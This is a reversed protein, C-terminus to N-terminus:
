SVLKVTVRKGRMIPMAGPVGAEAVGASLAERLVDDREQRLYASVRLLFAQGESVAPPSFCSFVVPDAGGLGASTWNRPPRAVRPVVHAHPLESPAISREAPEPGSAGPGGVSGRHPMLPGKRDTGDAPRPTERPRASLTSPKKAVRTSTLSDKPMAMYERGPGVVYDERRWTPGLADGAAYAHGEPLAAGRSPGERLEAGQQVLIMGSEKKRVRPPIPPPVSAEPTSAQQAYSAVVVHDPPVVTPSPPVRQPPGAVGEEEEDVVMDARVSQSPDALAVPPRTPLAPLQTISSRKQAVAKRKAKKTSMVLPRRPPGKADSKYMAPGLPAQRAVGLIRDDMRVAEKDTERAAAELDATDGPRATFPMAAAASARRTTAKSAISEPAGAGSFSRRMEESLTEKHVRSGGRQQPLEGATGTQVTEQSRAANEWSAQSTGMTTLRRRQSHDSETTSPRADSSRSRLMGKLKTFVGTPPPSPSPTAYLDEAPPLADFWIDDADEKADEEQVQGMMNVFPSQSDRRDAAPRRSMTSMQLPYDENPLHSRSMAGSPVAGRENPLQSRSMAGSPAAGRPPVDVIGREDLLRSRAFSGVPPPNSIDTMRHYDPYPRSTADVSLSFLAPDSQQQPAGTMVYSNDGTRTLVYQGEQQQQQQQQGDRAPQRGSFSQGGWSRSSQTTSHGTQRLSDAARLGYMALEVIQSDTPSQRASQSRAMGMGPRPPPREDHWRASETLWRSPPVAPASQIGRADQAGAVADPQFQETVEDLYLSLEANFHIREPGISSQLWRSPLVRAAPGEFRAGHVMTWGLSPDRLQSMVVAILPLDADPVNIELPLTWEASGDSNTAKALTEAAGRGCRFKVKFLGTAQPEVPLNEVM